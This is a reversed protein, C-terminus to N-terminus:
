PTYIVASENFLIINLDALNIFSAIIQNLYNHREIYLEDSKKNQCLTLKKFLNPAVFNRWLPKLIDEYHRHHWLKISKIVISIIESSTASNLLSFPDSNLKIQLWFTFLIYLYENQSPNNARLLILYGFDHSISYNSQILDTFACIAEKSINANFIKCVNTSLLMCQLSLSKNKQRLNYSNLMSVAVRHMTSQDNHEHIGSVIIALSFLGRFMILLSFFQWSCVSFFNHLCDFMVYLHM